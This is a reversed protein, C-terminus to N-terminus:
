SAPAKGCTGPILPPESTEHGPTLRWISKRELTKLNCLSHKTLPRRQREHHRFSDHAVQRLCVDNVVAKLLPPAQQGRLVQSSLQSPVPHGLQASDKELHSPGPWMNLFLCTEQLLGLHTPGPCRGSAPPSPRNARCDRCGPGGAMYYPERITAASVQQEDM